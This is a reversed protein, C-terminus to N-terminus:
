SPIFLWHMSGQPPHFSLWNADHDLGVPDLLLSRLLFMASASVNLLHTIPVEVYM